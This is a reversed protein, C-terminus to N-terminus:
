QNGNEKEILMMKTSKRKQQKLMWKVERHVGLIKGDEELKQMEQCKEKNYKQKEKRRRRNMTQNLTKYEPGNRNKIKTREEMMELIEDTMWAERKTKQSDTRSVNETRIKIANNRVM